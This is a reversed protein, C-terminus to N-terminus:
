AQAVDRFLRPDLASAPYLQVHIHDGENVVYGFFGSARAVAELRAMSEGGTPVLDAATWLLHQSQAAGGVAKNHSVSRGWSSIQFRTM